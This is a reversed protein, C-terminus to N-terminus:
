TDQDFDSPTSTSTSARAHKCSNEHDHMSSYSSAELVISLCGDCKQALARYSYETGASTDTRGPPQAPRVPGPCSGLWGCAHRWAAPSYSYDYLRLITASSNPWIHVDGNRSRLKMRGSSRRRAYAESTSEYECTRQHQERRAMRRPEVGSVGRVRSATAAAPRSKAAGDGKSKWLRHDMSIKPRGIASTIEAALRRAPRRSASTSAGCESSSQSM